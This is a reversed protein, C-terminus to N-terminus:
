CRSIRPTMFMTQHSLREPAYGRRPSLAPHPSATRQAQSHSVLVQRKM